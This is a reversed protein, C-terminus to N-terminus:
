CDKRKPRHYATEQPEEKGRATEWFEKGGGMRNKGNYEGQDHAKRM